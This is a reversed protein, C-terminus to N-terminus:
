NVGFHVPLYALVKEDLLLFALALSQKLSPHRQALSRHLSVRPESLAEGLVEMFSRPKPRLEVETGAPLSALKEARTL